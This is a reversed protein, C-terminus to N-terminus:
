ITHLLHLEEIFAAQARTKQIHRYHLTDIPRFRHTAVECRVYILIAYFIPMNQASM